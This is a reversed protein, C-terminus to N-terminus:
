VDFKFSESEENVSGENQGMSTLPLEVFGRLMLTVQFTLCQCLSIIEDLVMVGLAPYSFQKLFNWFQMLVARSETIYKLVSFRTKM